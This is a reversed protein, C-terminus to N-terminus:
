PPAGVGTAAERTVAGPGRGGGEAWRERLADIQEIFPKAGVGVFTERAMDAMASVEASRTGLARLLALTAIARRWPLGLQEYEALATRAERLAGDVQGDLAVNGSGLLQMDAARLRSHGPIAALGEHAAVTRERDGALLGALGAYFYAQPANLPDTPAYALWEDCATRNDGVGFAAEAKLGHIADLAGQEDLSEAWAILQRRQASVDEGRWVSVTHLQWSLFNSALEDHSAERAAVLERVALDWEAVEVAASAMNGVLTREFGGLGYRRAMALASAASEFSTRPDGALVGLNLRGRLATVVFGREDALDVGARIAGLGEYSRGLHCLASGRTVLVDCVIPVLDLQEASELARDAMEIAERVDNHLFYARSLQALLNTGGRGTPEGSGQVGDVGANLLALGADLRLVTVLLSGLLAIAGATADPNGLGRRLEVAQRLRDEAIDNLGAVGAAEGTRELLGALEAEDDTVARAQDLFAVAQGFSGLGVAREAAARLAIRAQAALAEAEDDGSTSQFAALYHGALAGALEDSGLSEFFRAAALHRVKRDRKALTNYAVERILAQVFVYQGAGPSRPDAEVRLLERRVLAQLRAEVEQEPRSSVAALASLTFSQGLVAADNIVARDDPELGDLRSAILATLTEPVALETLDGVPRYVGDREVLREEAVLARVTEVAYLPIGDARLVITEVASRALGPVLGALLARMTSPSLPDLHLSTFNRKAAGWTSRRELLEPRALTLVYIPINRSWDLLQDVFDILGDDAFHFDEFVLVVPATVALREFFSRWAGFLQEAGGQAPEIGLLALLAPEIWRREEADPVHAALTQAVKARTTDADDTERLQCRERVMEGLAWFSIGDGYAPSRGDHWWVTEVLGDVYKLFEWALRSKGIGAPGIVSVLRARGERTTAHFLDKLLRLEDDRGM